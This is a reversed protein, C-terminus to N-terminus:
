EVIGSEKLKEEFSHVRKYLPEIFFFGSLLFVAAFLFLAVFDLVVSSTLPGAIAERFGGVSYTFPFFPQLIKFITPDVQIPYTGGSGALQLIMYIIALAKGMNGLTSMLTYTIISFTLSSVVAFVVMLPADVTYVHLLFIDGLAVIFGQIMALTSFIMMKGFHKERLTLEEIGVFYGSKAKLLSNLILCGVWLALVSYIPAMSSGYNPIQNISEEKLNFPNSMFDGMFKPNSELISIIQVIDNNNVLQFKASLQKIVDKFELLRSNLDDSFQSALSSGHQASDVLTAIQTSLDQASQILDSADRTATVLGNGITNLDDKVNSNYQKIAIILQADIKSADNNIADAINKSITNASNLQQQISSFQRKEDSLYPKIEKLSTIIGSMDNKKSNNSAKVTTLFNSATDIKTNATDIQKSIDILDDNLCIIIQEVKQATGKYKGNNMYTKFDGLSTQLLNLSQTLQTIQANQLTQNFSELTGGTSSILQNLNDIKLNIDSIHTDLYQTFQDISKISDQPKIQLDALQKKMDALAIQLDKLSTIMRDENSNLDVSQYEELYEITADISNSLSDLELNIGPLASNIKASNANSVSSNLSKFLNKIRANSTQAYDLNMNINNISSNLTAQTSKMIKENDANSKKIVALQNRISPITPSINTLFENLNDSNTSVSQLSNTISDMNSNINIISDKLKIIDEKNEDASKGVTNLSSFITENVTSIFNSTIEDVLTNKAVETIKGAVPNVKTDVKYILQPKKYNNSLVSLFDSSFDKPIEIMAYYTGDVLGLNAERSSVFTWMIKHNKKLQEIVSNGINLKKNNFIVDQDENVVAVPITGTNEYTNWCAQINVWAYL